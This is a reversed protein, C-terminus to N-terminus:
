FVNKIFEVLSELDEAAQLFHYQVIWVSKEFFFNKKNKFGKSM